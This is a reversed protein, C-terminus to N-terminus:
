CIAEARTVVDGDHVVCDKTLTLDHPCYPLPAMDIADHRTSAFGRQPGFIPNQLLAAGVNYSAM